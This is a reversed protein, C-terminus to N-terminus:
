LYLDQLCRNKHKYFGSNAPLTKKWFRLTALLM